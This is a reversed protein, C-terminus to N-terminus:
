IRPFHEARLEDSYFCNHRPNCIRLTAAEAGCHGPLGAVRERGPAVVSGRIVRLAAVQSEKLRM